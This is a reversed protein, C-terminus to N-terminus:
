HNKQTNKRKTSKTKKRQNKLTKKLVGKKNKKNIEKRKKIKVKKEKGRKKQKQKIIIFYLLISILLIKIFLVGKWPLIFVEKEIKQLSGSERLNLVIKYEGFYFNSFFGSSPKFDASIKRNKKPLITTEGTSIKGIPKEERLVVLSGKPKTHYVDNNKVRFILPFSASNLIVEKKFIKELFSYRAGAPIETEIIKFDAKEKKGVSILFLSSVRPVLKANAKSEELQPTFIWSVYYGGRPTNEPIKIKFKIIKREDPKLTTKLEKELFWETGKKKKYGIGGLEDKAYFNTLQSTINLKFDNKNWLLIRGNYTEGKEFELNFVAPGVFLEIKKENQAFIFGCTLFSFVIVTLLIKKSIRIM